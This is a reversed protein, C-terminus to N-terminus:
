IQVEFHDHGYPCFIDLDLIKAIGKGTVGYLVPKVDYKECLELLEPLTGNVAASGTICAVDVKKLVESNMFGSLIKVGFKICGINEPNLDTVYVNEAGFHKVLAKVHGPQYGIHAVKVKGFKSMLYSAFEEGCIEPEEEMCHITGKIRKLKHLVANLTAFFVARDGEDGYIMNLVDKIKGSFEKPKSTFAQGYGGEIECHVIVERGKALAYERSPLRTFDPKLVVCKVSSNLLGAKEAVEFFAKLIVKYMDEGRQM